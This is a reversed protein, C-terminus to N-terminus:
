LVNIIYGEMLKESGSQLLVGCETNKGVIDARQVGKKLNKIKTKLIEEKTDAIIISVSDNVRLRGHTVLCGAIVDGSPLPYLKHIEARGKIKEEEIEFIGELAGSLEEVLNYIVDYERVLVNMQEAKDKVRQILGVKFAIVIGSSASALNIDSEKVDGCDALIINVKKGEFEIKNISSKIAELTGYTDARLIINLGEEMNIRTKETLEEQEIKHGDYKKVLDGSVAITKLGLVQCPDGAEVSKVNKLNFDLISRVKFINDRGIILEEGVNLVGKTLVIDAVFGKKSNHNSELVFAELDDKKSSPNETIESLAIISDLLKDLNTKKTASVEVCMVDGGFEELVLGEDFIQKKVRAINIDPLDSKTIAVIVPINADKIHFLAEKTQPKVGDNAAVVLIAIDAVKGGRARMESFAEHGPTDIFTIKKDKHVIQSAATHQTIGGSETSVVNSNRLVDLLTTKGHDVHGMVTVIPPRNM